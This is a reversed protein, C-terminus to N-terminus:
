QRCLAGTIPSFGYASTCGYPLAYIASASLGLSGYNYGIVDNSYDCHKYVGPIPDTSWAESPHYCAISGTATKYSYFDNAGYRVQRTGSFSCTGGEDACLTWSSSPPPVISITPKNTITVNIYQPALIAGTAYDYVYVQLQSVGAAPSITIKAYNVGLTKEYFQNGTIPDKIRMAQNGNLSSSTSITPWTSSDDAYWSKTSVVPTTIVASFTQTPITGSCSATVRMGSSVAGGSSDTINVVAQKVGASSYSASFAGSSTSGDTYASVDGYVNWSYRFPAVGDSINAQWKLVPGGTSPSFGYTSTCTVSVPKISVSSGDCTMGTTLSYGSTSTCGSPLNSGTPGNIAFSSDSSDKADLSGATGSHNQVMIKYRGLSNPIGLSAPDVPWDISNIGSSFHDRLAYVTNSGEPQLYVTTYPYAIGNIRWSITVNSGISWTEGGNPSLVTITPTTQTACIPFTNVLNSLYRGVIVWDSIDIAADGNLDAIANTSTRSGVVVQSLWDSDTGSIVGDGNLDGKSGCVLPKVIPSTATTINFNSDSQDQTCGSSDCITTNIRIRYSGPLNPVIVYATQKDRAEIVGSTLQRDGGGWVLSVEYRTGVPLNTSFTVPLSSGVQWSEGGNPGLVTIYSQAPIVSGVNVSITTKATGANSPCPSTICNITNESTVTFTLTYNGAQSYRHTFTASQSQPQIFSNGGLIDASYTEGWNVSYTLNGGNKEYAKVTWTGQENVNLSQPGNIGTIVPSKTEISIKPDTISIDNDEMFDKAARATIRGYKGDIKGFYYEESKLIRQLSKVAEGRSGVTFNNARVLATFQAVAASNDSNDNGCSQGTVSSFANGSECGCDQGTTASYVSTANCGPAYASASNFGLLILSLAFLSVLYKKM